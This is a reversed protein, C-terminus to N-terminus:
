NELVSRLFPRLAQDDLWLFIPTKSSFWHLSRWIHPSIPSMKWGWGTQIEWPSMGLNGECSLRAFPRREKRVPIHMPWLCWSYPSDRGGAVCRSLSCSKRTLLYHLQLPQDSEILSLAGKLKWMGPSPQGKVRLWCVTTRVWAAVERYNLPFVCVTIRSAWVFKDSQGRAAHLLQALCRKALICTGFALSPRM